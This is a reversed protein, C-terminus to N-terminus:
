EYIDYALVLSSKDSLEQVHTEELIESCPTYQFNFAVHLIRM